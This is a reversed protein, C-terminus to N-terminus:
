KAFYIDNKSGQKVSYMALDAANLLKDPQNGHEPYLSIGISASVAVLRTDSITIPIMIAKIIKQAVKETDARSTCDYLLLIFEDGGIRSVLDIDRSNDRLRQAVTKLVIDGAEHGHSDNIKKFNDLDIFLVALLKKHRNAQKISQNFKMYFLTRNALGTLPDSHARLKLRDELMKQRTIDIAMSVMFTTGDPSEEIFANHWQCLINNGRKTLNWNKGKYAIRRNFVNDLIKRVSKIDTAPLLLEYSIKGIAESATWGFTKEACQNWQTIVGKSNVIILATPTNDIITTLWSQSAKLKRNLRLVLIFITTIVIIILSIGILWQKVQRMDITEAPYYLFDNLQYDNPLKEQEQYTKAIHLWRGVYMYGLEILNPQLLQKMKDAEFRLHGLTHRKSYRKYILQIIEEPNQMAYQWGKLSATRFAAARNPHQNLEKQTTFLNDGYFDIGGMTPKFLVYSFGAKSLAYPEDTTYVSMASVKQELLDKIDFSHDVINLKNKSLGESKLYAFLETSNPEIMVSQNAISQIFVTEERQPIALALPSHQFIVALVVVPAGQQHLLMLESTGIGYDANGDIVYKIPDTGTKAERIVVDLGVERYFGKERAAYYGAFQFQHKWKLQLTVTELGSALCPFLM